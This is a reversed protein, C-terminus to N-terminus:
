QEDTDGEPQPKLANWPDRVKALMSGCVPCFIVQPDPIRQQCISCQAIYFFTPPNSNIQMKTIVVSGVRIPKESMESAKETHQKPVEQLVAPRNAGNGCV